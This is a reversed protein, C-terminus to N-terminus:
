RDGGDLFDGLVADFAHIGKRGPLWEAALVAGLAFGSRGRARHTLEIADHEGDFGIAHLGPEHGARIAAVPPRRGSAEEIAGALRLATGSPADRKGGHHREVIWPDYLGRAVLMGAADRVIRAFLNMGPSFNPAVVAAVGGEAAARAVEPDSPDWGTTGCVVPVGGALLARVNASAVDPRTFEFAAAVDGALAAEVSGRSAVEHGRSIAVAEIARGMRGYGVIALRM